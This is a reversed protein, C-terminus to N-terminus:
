YKSFTVKNEEQIFHLCHWYMKNYCLQISLDMVQGYIQIHISKVVFLAMHEKKLLWSTILNKSYVITLIFSNYPNQGDIFIHM